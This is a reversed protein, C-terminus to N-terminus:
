EPRYRAHVGFGTEVFGHGPEGDLTCVCGHDNQGDLMAVVEPDETDYRSHGLPPWDERATYGGASLFIRGDITFELSRQAGSAFELDLAGSRLTTGEVDLRHDLGTVTDRIGDPGALWGNTFHRKGSASEYLLLWMATDAFELAAFLVFGRRPAGEHKRMGWGRDRFGAVPAIEYRRGDLEITGEYYGSQYFNMYDTVVEGRVEIVNRDSPVVPGRARFRMDVQMPAGPAESTIRLERLPEVVEICVEGVHPDDPDDGPAFDKAARVAHQAGPVSVSVFAKADGRYPYVARGADFMLGPALRASLYTREAWTPDLRAALLRPAVLQHTYSEDASSMAEAWSSATFESAHRLRPQRNVELKEASTM